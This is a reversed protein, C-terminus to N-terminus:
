SQEIGQNIRVIRKQSRGKRRLSGDLRVQFSAVNGYIDAKERLPPLYAYDLIYPGGKFYRGVTPHKGKDELEEDRHTDSGGSIFLRKDLIYQGLAEYDEKATDCSLVAKAAACDLFDKAKDYDLFDTTATYDLFDEAVGYDLIGTTSAYGLIRKIAAYGSVKKAVIYKLIEKTAAYDLVGKTYKGDQKPYFAEIGDIGQEIIYDLFPLVDLFTKMKKDLRCPHPLIAIGGARHIAEVAVAVPVRHERMQKEIPIINEREMDKLIDFAERRSPVLGEQVLLFSLTGLNISGKLKSKITSFRFDYGIRESICDCVQIIYPEKKEAIEQQIRYIPEFDKLFLGVIHINPFIDNYASIEIGPIYERGRKRSAAEIKRVLDGDIYDHDTSAWALLGAQEVLELLEFLTWFGDSGGVIDACGASPIVGTSHMHLDIGRGTPKLYPYHDKKYGGCVISM